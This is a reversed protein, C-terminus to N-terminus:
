KQCDAIYRKLEDVAYLRKKVPTILKRIRGDAVLTNLSRVSIGLMAAATEHDVALPPTTVIAPRAPYATAPEPGAEPKPKRKRPM